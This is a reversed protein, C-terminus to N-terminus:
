RQKKSFLLNLSVVLALLGFIIFGYQYSKTAM